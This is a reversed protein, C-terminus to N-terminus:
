RRELGDYVALTRAVMRDVSFAERAHGLARAALGPGEIRARTIAAVLGDEDGPEFLVGYAGDGLVEPIAGARSGVVPVGRLM